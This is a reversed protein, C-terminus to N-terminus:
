RVRFVRIRPFPEEPLAVADPSEEPKRGSRHDDRLFEVPFGSRSGSAKGGLFSRMKRQAPCARM